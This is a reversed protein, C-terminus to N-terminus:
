HAALQKLRVEVPEPLGSAGPQAANARRYIVSCGDRCDHVTVQSVLTRVGHIYVEQLGSIRTITLPYGKGDMIETRTDITINM